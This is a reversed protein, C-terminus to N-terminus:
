KKLCWVFLVLSSLWRLDDTERDPVHHERGGNGSLLVSLGDHWAETAEMVPLQSSNSGCLGLTIAECLLSVGPPPPPSWSVSIGVKLPLPSM